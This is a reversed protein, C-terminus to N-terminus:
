SMMDNACRWVDDSKYACTGEAVFRLELGDKM